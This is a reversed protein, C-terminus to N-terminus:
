QWVRVPCRLRSGDSSNLQYWDGLSPRFIAIDAKGDGDFDGVTPKDEPLGFQRGFFLGDSSNQRYWTATSPRFMSVDAKGDGDYDAPTPLDEALGFTNHTVTGTSSEFIYWIGTEPRYVAIDTKGDGDYDAPAIKDSGFGFLTGYLGATSQQLYWAGTSPRFVSIDSKGDGDYDFATSPAPTATPTATPTDTPTATPTNTPTMTPTSTPTPTQVAGPEALTWDGTFDTVGTLNFTNAQKDILGVPQTFGGNYKEIEFNAETATPPIDFPDLYHFSLDATINDYEVLTWYRSLAKSSDFINPQTTQVTKATFLTPFISGSTVDIFVPSYGNETGLDFAFSGPGPILRTLLGNVYGNTRTVTGGVFFDVPGITTVVGNVLQLNWAGFLGNVIVGMPNNIILTSNGGVGNGLGSLTQPATGNLNITGPSAPNLQLHTGLLMTIDGKISHGPNGTLNLNLTGSVLTLNDMILANSGTAFVDGSPYNLEFDAYTRGSFSPQGDGRLSFLSGHDFRVVSNPEVAGFPDGGEISVCKSGSAFIISNLSTTGFPNGTFGAGATFVAGNNFTISGADLASLRHGASTFTMAGSINASAAEGINITIPHSGTFNLASDTGVTFDDGDGGSITLIAASSTQLNVTTNGFVILQNITQTPINTATTTGGINFVLVDSAAPDTRLPTWSSPTQWDGEVGPQWSYVSTTPTLVYNRTIALGSSVHAALILFPVGVVLCIARIVSQGTQM